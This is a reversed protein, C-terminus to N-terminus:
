SPHLLTGLVLSSRLEVLLHLPYPLGAALYRLYVRPNAPGISLDHSQSILEARPEDHQAAPAKSGQPPRQHSADGIRHDAVGVARHQHHALLSPAFPKSTATLRWFRRGGLLDM